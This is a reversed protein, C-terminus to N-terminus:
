RSRLAAGLAPLLGLRRVAAQGLAGARALRLHARRLLRDLALRPSHPADGAAAALAEDGLRDGLQLLDLPRVLTLHDLAHHDHQDGARDDAEVEPHRILREPMEHLVDEQPLGINRQYTM